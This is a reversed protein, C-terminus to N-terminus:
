HISRRGGSGFTAPEFGTPRAMVWEVEQPLALALGHAQAAPTLRVEVFERRRVVIADYTEEILAARDAAPLAPDSWTRTFERLREAVLVPDIAHVASAAEVLSESRDLQDIAAIFGAPEASGNLLGLCTRPTSAGTARSPGTPRHGRIPGLFGGRQYDARFHQTRRAPGSIPGEWVQASYSAQSGWSACSEHRPHVKRTRPPSGM